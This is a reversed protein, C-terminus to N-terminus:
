LIDVIHLHSIKTSLARALFPCYLTNLLRIEMGMWPMLMLGTKYVKDGHHLNVVTDGLLKEVQALNSETIKEPLGKELAEADLGSIYQAGAAGQVKVVTQIFHKSGFPYQPYMWPFTHNPLYLRKGRNILDKAEDSIYHRPEPALLEKARFIKPLAELLGPYRELDRGACDIDTTQRSGNLGTSIRKKGHKVIMRYDEANAGTKIFHIGFTLRPMNPIKRYEEWEAVSAFMNVTTGTIQRPEFWDLSKVLLMLQWLRAQIDEPVYEFVHDLLDLMPKFTIANMTADGGYAKPKCEEAYVKAVSLGAIYCRVWSRVRDDTLMLKIFERWTRVSKSFINNKFQFFFELARFTFPDAIKARFVEIDNKKQTDWVQPADMPASTKFKEVLSEFEPASPTELNKAWREVDKVTKEAIVIPNPRRGPSSQPKKIARTSRMIDHLEGIISNTPSIDYLYACLKLATALEKAKEHISCGDLGNVGLLFTKSPASEARMIDEADICGKTAPNFFCSSVYTAIRHKEVLKSQESNFFAYASLMYGKFGVPLETAHIRRVIEVVDKLAYVTLRKRKSTDFSPVEQVILPRMKKSVSVGAPKVNLQRAIKKFKELTAKPLGFPCLHAEYGDCFIACTAKGKAARVIEVQDPHKTTKWSPEQFKNGSRPFNTTLFLMAKEKFASPFNRPEKAVLFTGSSKKKQSSNEYLFVTDTFPLIFQPPKAEPGISYTATSVLETTVVTEIQGHTQIGSM